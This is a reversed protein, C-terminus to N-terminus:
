VFSEQPMLYEPSLVPIQLDEEALFELPFHVLFGKIEDRVGEYEEISPSREYTRVDQVKRMANNPYCGFLDHYLRTNTQNASVDARAQLLATFAPSLPDRLLESDAEGLLEQFIRIRLSHAFISVKVSKGDLISDIEASDQIVM